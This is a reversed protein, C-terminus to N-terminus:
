NTVYRPVPNAELRKGLEDRCSKVHRLFDGDRRHAAGSRLWEDMAKLEQRGGIAALTEAASYRVVGDDDSLLTVVASADREDGIEALLGVAVWRTVDNEDGLRKVVGPVFRRRDTKILSLMFCVQQACLPEVKPDALIQEYTPFVRDGYAMLKAIAPKTDDSGCVKRTEWLM